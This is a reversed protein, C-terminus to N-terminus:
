NGPESLKTRVAFKGHIGLVIASCAFAVAAGALVDSAYHAGSTMRQLCASVALIGFIPASRPFLISLAIALGVATAAHGSPFSRQRADWFSAEVQEVLKPSDIKGPVSESKTYSALKSPTAGHASKGTNAAKGVTALDGENEPHNQKQRIEPGANVVQINGQAHPRIRVVAAKLLNATLGCVLPIAVALLVQNRNKWQVCLISGLIAAVGFGHAFAESLNIAKRIDGPLDWSRLSESILADFSFCSISAIGALMSVVILPKIHM